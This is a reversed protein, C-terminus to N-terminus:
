LRQDDGAGLGLRREGQHVAAGGPKGGGSGSGHPGGTSASNASQNPTEVKTRNGATAMTKRPTAHPITPDSTTALRIANKLSAMAWVANAPTAKPSSETM